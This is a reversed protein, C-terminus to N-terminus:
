TVSRSRCLAGRGATASCSALIHSKGGFVRHEPCKPSNRPGPWNSYLQDDRTPERYSFLVSLALSWAQGCLLCYIGLQQARVPQEHISRCDYGREPGGLDLQCRSRRTEPWATFPLPSMLSSQQHTKNRALTQHINGVNWPSHPGM